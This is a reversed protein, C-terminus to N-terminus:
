DSLRHERTRLFVSRSDSCTRYQCLCLGGNVGRSPNEYRYPCWSRRCSCVKKEIPRGRTSSKCFKVSLKNGRWSRSMPYGLGCLCRGTHCRLRLLIGCDSNKLLWRRVTGIKLQLGFMSHILSMDETNEFLEAVPPMEDHWYISGFPLFNVGWESNPQYRLATLLSVAKESLKM